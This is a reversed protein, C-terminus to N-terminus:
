YEEKALIDEDFYSACRREASASKGRRIEVDPTLPSLAEDDHDYVVAKKGKRDPRAPPTVCANEMAQHSDLSVNGDRVYKTTPSAREATDQWDVEHPARIPGRLLSSSPSRPASQGGRINANSSMSGSAVAANEVLTLLRTRAARLRAPVHPSSSLAALPSAKRKPSINLPATPLCLRPAHSVPERGDADSNCPSSVADESEPLDSPLNTSTSRPMEPPDQNNTESSTRFSLEPSRSGRTTLRISGRHLPAKFRTTTPKPTTEGGRLTKSPAELLWAPRRAPRRASESLMATFTQSIQQEPPPSSPLSASQQSSLGAIAEDQIELDFSNPTGESQSQQSEIPLTTTIEESIFNRIHRRARTAGLWAAVTRDPFRKPPSSLFASPEKDRSPDSEQVSIAAHRRVKQGYFLEDGTWEESSTDPQATDLLAEAAAAISDSSRCVPSPGRAETHDEGEDNYHGAPSETEGNSKQRMRRASPEEPSSRSRLRCSSASPSKSRWSRRLPTIDKFIKQMSKSHGFRPPTRILSAPMARRKGM